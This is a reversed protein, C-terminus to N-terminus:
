SLEWHLSYASGDDALLTLVAGDTSYDKKRLYCSKSSGNARSTRPGNEAILFLPAFTSLDIRSCNGELHTQFATCSRASPFSTCTMGKFHAIPGQSVSRPLPRISHILYDMPPFYGDDCGTGCVSCCVGNKGILQADRYM